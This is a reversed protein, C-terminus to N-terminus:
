GVVGSFVFAWVLNIIYSCWLECAHLKKANVVLFGDVFVCSFFDAWLHFVAEMDIEFEWNGICIWTLWWLFGLLKYFWVWSFVEVEHLRVWLSKKGMLWLQLLPLAMVVGFISFLLLMMWTPFSQKRNKRTDKLEDISKMDERTSDLVKRLVPRSSKDHSAAESSIRDSAAQESLQEQNYKEVYEPFMKRFTASYPFYDTEM